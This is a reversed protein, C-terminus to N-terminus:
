DCIKKYKREAMDVHFHNRHDANAEPGLTTGFIRCAAAHAEHLFQAQPGPPREVVSLAAADAPADPKRATANKPGGLKTLEDNPSRASGPLTITIKDLGNSRVRKAGGAAPTGLSSAVAVPPPATKADVATKKAPKAAHPDKINQQAKADAATLAAADKEAQAKEAAIREAIERKPTGWGNLVSTTQGKETVFAGIDLANAFAHESLHKPGRGASTRCSYDSMVEIRNIKAGLQKVALPQLDNKIWGALVGALECDVLAPPSFAVPPNKGVSTLRIPAPAGCQGERIPPQPVAVADIDKLIAACRAQAAAVEEPRWAPAPEALKGASKDDKKEPLPPIPQKAQESTAHAPKASKSVAISSNSHKAAIVRGSSPAQSISTSGALAGQEYWCLALACAALGLGFRLM